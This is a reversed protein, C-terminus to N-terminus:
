FGFLPYGDALLRIPSARGFMIADVIGTILPFTGFNVLLSVGVLAAIAIMVAMWPREFRASVVFMLTYLFWSVLVAWRFFPGPYAYVGAPLVAASSAVAASVGLLVLPPVLWVLGALYRLAFLQVRSVPLSLAYIWSGRREDAWASAGWALAALCIAGMLMVGVNQSLLLSTASQSRRRGAAGLVMLSIVPVLGFVATTLLLMARRREWEVRVFERLLM